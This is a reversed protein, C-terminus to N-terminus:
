KKIDFEELNIPIEVIELEESGKFDPVRKETVEGTEKFKKLAEQAEKESKFYGTERSNPELERGKVNLERWGSCEECSAQGCAVYTTGVYWGGGSRMVQFPSVHPDVEQGLEKQSLVTEGPFM